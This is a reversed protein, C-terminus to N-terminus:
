NEIFWMNVAFWKENRLNKDEQPSTNSIKGNQM